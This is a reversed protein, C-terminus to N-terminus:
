FRADAKKHKSVFSFSSHWGGIIIIIILFAIVVVVVVRWGFPVREEHQYRRQRESREQGRM